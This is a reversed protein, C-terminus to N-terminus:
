GGFSWMGSSHPSTNRAFDHGAPKQSAIEKIKEKIEKDPRDAMAFINEGSDYCLCPKLVGDSTLRIRGCSKCFCDSVASIFGIRGSFGDFSYYVAPGAGTRGLYLGKGLRKELASRVKGNSVFGGRGSMPMYEIFRVDIRRGKAMLALPLIDKENLDKIVVANIKLRLGASYAANIGDLVAALTDRRTLKKYTLPDASDLSVNVCDAGASKLLSAYKKLLVGNSTLTVSKILPLAKIDSVVSAIDERMLPEGGTLKIKTVGCESLLRAYRVLTKARPDPTRSQIGDPNCYLCSLSCRSTVSIRAYDIVRGLDDTMSTIM